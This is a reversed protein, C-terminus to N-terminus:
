ESARPRHSKRLRVGPGGGNEDIFEVGAAPMPPGEKGIPRASAGSLRREQFRDSGRPRPPCRRDGLASGGSKRCQHVGSWRSRISQGPCCGDIRTGVSQRAKVGATEGHAAISLLGGCPSAAGLSAPGERRRDARKHNASCVSVSRNTSARPV